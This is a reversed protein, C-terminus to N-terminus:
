IERAKEKITCGISLLNSLFVMFRARIIFGEVVQNASLDLNNLEALHKVSIGTM